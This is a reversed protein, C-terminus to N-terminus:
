FWKEVVSTEARTMQNVTRGDSSNGTQSYQHFYFRPGRLQSKDFVECGAIRSYTLCTAFRQLNALSRPDHRRAPGRRLTQDSRGRLMDWIELGSHGPLMFDLLLLQPDFNQTASIADMQNTCQQVDYGGAEELVLKSLFATDPDDEVQLIRKLPM